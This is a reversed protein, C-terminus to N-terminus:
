KKNWMWRWEMGDELETPRDIMGQLVGCIFSSKLLDASRIYGPLM